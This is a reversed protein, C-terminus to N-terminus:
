KSIEELQGVQATIARQGGAAQLRNDFQNMYELNERAIGVHAGTDYAEKLTEGIFQRLVALNKYDNTQKWINFMLECKGNNHYMMARHGEGDQQAKASRREYEQRSVLDERTSYRRAEEMAGSLQGSDIMLDRLTTILEVVKDFKHDLIVSDLRGKLIKATQEKAQWQAEMESSRAAFWEREIQIEGQYAYLRDQFHERGSHLNVTLGAGKAVGIVYIWNQLQYSYETNSSLEVGYIDVTKYGLFMALALAYSATSTFWHDDAKLPSFAPYEKCIEDLPYKQSNPVRCDYEQMWIVSDKGHDEQLWTWHNKNVWNTLSTYSIERHLQMCATWRKMWPLQCAENFGWIDYEPDDYPAGERTAPHSGVIALKHM